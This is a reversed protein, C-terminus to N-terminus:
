VREGRLYELARARAFGLAEEIPITGLATARRADRLAAGVHAGPEVALEDGHFPLPTERYRAQDAAAEAARGDLRLVALTEAPAHDLQAMRAERDPEAAVKEALAEAGRLSRLAAQRHGSLGSGPLVEACSADPGLLADLFLIEADLGPEERLRETLRLRPERGGARVSGLLDDLAHAAALAELAAAAGEERMAFRLERWLRERSVSALAGSGIADRLLVGTTTELEFGLRSALRLARFIRTPDDLFSRDHLVRMLRAGLDAGGGAPDVIAGSELESAMANVSFDRRLLDDHITGPRVRPLAGPVPYSERRTTVVDVVEGDDLLAAATRFEAHEVSRGGLRDALSQALDAAGREVALDVDTSPRELLADRVPGGVLWVPQRRERGWSAAAELVRRHREAFSGPEVSM